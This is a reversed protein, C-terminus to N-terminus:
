QFMFVSMRVVAMTIQARDRNTCSVVLSTTVPSTSGPATRQNIAWRWSPYQSVVCAVAQDSNPKTSYM